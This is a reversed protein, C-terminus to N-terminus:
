KQFAYVSNIAEFNVNYNNKISRRNVKLKLAIFGFEASVILFV